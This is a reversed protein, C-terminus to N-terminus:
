GGRLASSVLVFNHTGRILNSAHECGTLVPRSESSHRVLRLRSCAPTPWTSRRLRSTPKRGSYRPQGYRHNRRLGRPRSGRLHQANRGRTRRPSPVLATTPPSRCATSGGAGINATWEDRPSMVLGFDLIRSDLVVVYAVVVQTIPPPSSTCVRTRVMWCTTLIVGTARRLPPSGSRRCRCRRLSQPPSAMNQFQKM